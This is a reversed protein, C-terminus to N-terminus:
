KGGLYEDISIAAEKGTKVAYVVSKDGHAVDGAFFVKDNPLHNGLAKVEGKDLELSLGTVDPSQGVAVIVLPAKITLSSDLFRHKFTITGDEYSTPIYGCIISDALHFGSERENKSAKFESLEEYVVDIVRSVGLKKLSTVVDMAVDGGGVVVVSTPLNMKEEKRLGSLFDLASIAGKKNIFPSIMKGVGYGTAV